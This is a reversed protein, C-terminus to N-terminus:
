VECRVCPSGHPLHAMHLAKLTLGGSISSTWNTAAARFRALSPQAFQESLGTHCKPHLFRADYLAHGKHHTGFNHKEAPSQPPTQPIASQGGRGRECANYCCTTSSHQPGSPRAPTITPPLPHPRNVVGEMPHHMGEVYAGSVPISGYAGALSTHRNATEPPGVEVFGSKTGCSVKQIQVSM